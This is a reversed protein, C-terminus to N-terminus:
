DHSTTRLVFPPAPIESLFNQCVLEFVKRTQGLPAINARPRGSGASARWMSCSGLPALPPRSEHRRWPIRDVAISGASASRARGNSGRLERRLLIAGAGIFTISSSTRQRRSSRPRVHSPPVPRPFGLRLVQVAGDRRSRAPSARLSARNRELWQFPARDTPMSM